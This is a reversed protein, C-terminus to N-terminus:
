GLKSAALLSLIEELEAGESEEEQQEKRPGILDSWWGGAVIEDPEFDLSDDGLGDDSSFGAWKVAACTGAGEGEGGISGNSGGGSPDNASGSGSAPAMFGEGEGGGRLANLYNIVLLVDLPSVSSDGNVDVFPPPVFGTGTLVRSGRANLDNIILLADIPSVEGDSNVDHRNTGNQWQSSNVVFGFDIDTTATNAVVTANQRGNVPSLPNAIPSTVQIRYTGAPLSPISYGGLDTTVTEAKAGFQLNDLRVSGVTHGGAIAYAIDSTGRALRMKEIGGNALEATTYRGLLQGAANYIELRGFSGTAAGIADIEVVSTPTTFNIQLRRSSATWTSLYSQAAKSFARFNKTGTSNATDTFVGVRGDSDSGIASLTVFVSFNSALQGDVYSDPEILKRLSLPDGNSNLATVTWGAQGFEGTDRLGNKNADIWVFGNVGPVQTADARSLRGSFINSVVTSKSDRARIEITTATSPVPISLNLNAVHVNPQTFTQWNGGDVRYEVERIRNITIDNKFGETNLNPMTQVTAVGEFKYTGSLSDFYGDGTLKLPVDLVDFIGDQDSDQWGLMALTTPPSVNNAYATDLLSAAAMISPQQVFGPTVNDAANTNPTNYYGRRQFYSGGGVYEDRAWFMHGTEHTFTSAPRTSPVVEFLGGAFAFAKLFSGGNAFQGDVDNVSPVVFITFSWDTNLKERQSHNFARIGTQINGNYGQGTLFEQVWFSFDNSVRSIPEYATQVPTEAYVPDIVFELEHVSQFTALTDVWWQLGEEIKALVESIHAQTWNETNPDIQGNSELFVPTVAVRGLMFEGTDEEFAGFPEVAFVKRVELQELKLRRSLSRKKRSFLVM